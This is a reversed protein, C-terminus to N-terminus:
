GNWWAKLKTIFGRSAADKVLRFGLYDPPAGVSCGGGSADQIFDTIYTRHRGEVVRVGCNSTEVAGVKGTETIETREFCTSTWEWVNGSLDYIGHENTGYTGRVKVTGDGSRGLEAFQKYKALWKKSPDSNEDLNKDLADDAFRGGAAYSWEMDTPLRWRVGTTAGLWKIYDQVDHYSVGTVPKNENTQRKGFPRRCAEDAVCRFYDAVSVQYKMIELRKTIRVSVMPASVPRGEKLFAGSARYRHSGPELTVLDFSTTAAMTATAACFMGAWIFALTPLLTRKIDM